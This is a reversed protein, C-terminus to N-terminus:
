DLWLLFEGSLFEMSKEESLKKYFWNVVLKYMSLPLFIESAYTERM